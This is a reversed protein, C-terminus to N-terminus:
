LTFRIAIGFWDAIFNAGKFEISPQWDLALNVPANKIKYDLGIVGDLGGTGGGGSKQNFFTVHAGPGLYWKLGSVNSINGHIEYLGTIRFSKSRFYGLFELAKLDAIFHKM